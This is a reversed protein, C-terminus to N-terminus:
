SSGLEVLRGDPDFLAAVEGGGPLTGTVVIQGEQDGTVVQFGYSELYAVLARRADRLQFAMLLEPFVMAVRLPPPEPPGPFRPDKVLLFVAGREYPGRYYFSADTLGAAVVAIRHGSVDSSSMSATVLEPIGNSTGWQRLSSAVRTRAAPIQSAVNAWSWLWTGTDDSETGLIQAELELGDDLAGGEFCLLGTALDFRWEHDDGLLEGLRLQRDFRAGAMSEFLELFAPTM